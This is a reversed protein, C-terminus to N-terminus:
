MVIDSLLGNSGFLSTFCYNIVVVARGMWLACDYFYLNNWVFGFMHYEVPRMPQIRSANRVDTKTVFCERKLTLIMKIANDVSGYQM